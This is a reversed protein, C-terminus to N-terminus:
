YYYFFCLEDIHKKKAIKPNRFRLMQWPARNAPVVIDTKLERTKRILHDVGNEILEKNRLVYFSSFKEVIYLRVQIM